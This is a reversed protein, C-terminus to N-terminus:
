NAFVMKGSQEIKGDIVLSYIFTGQAHYGHTYLVENIGKRLEIPMRAIEKGSLDTIVIHASRYKKETSVMVSITTAEDFPNPTNPLLKIGKKTQENQVNTPVSVLKEGSFLSEVGNSDVSAVSIFHAVAPNVVFTGATDSMYFVTDWDHTATRVAVRYLDYGEESTLDVYISDEGAVTVNFTPTKPGIGAMGLANGNIAANRALYNFDVFFSDVVMDGDTDAGLTDRVSHQRDTYGPGVGADGHENASTFRMATYGHQRFPIHDGGRGTRDEPSQIRIDMPVAVYPLLEETYELKIFRCYQKHASNFSGASFLRVGLSDVHGLGPCSPPSSTTGCLIGGIVDNNQVCKVKIGKSQVYDAFAEAGDLGQEESTTVLFVLTHNYSYKSMVRCLEIVLATGSANDEIGQAVCSTDCVTECRSDMHGEVIIIRKDSTDMGPLVAFAMRHQSVSCITQDFQLYSTILRNENAASYQQFKSYVWRRAAGYGHVASVTDSGTNRNHFSAMKFITAKLSDTNIRALIGQSISDPHCIVTSAMYTAPNYNGLMVQEATPNTSLINIAQANIKVQACLALFFLFLAKRM